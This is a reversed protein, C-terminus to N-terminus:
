SVALFARSFILDSAVAGGFAGGLFNTFASVVVPAACLLSVEVVVDVDGLAVAAGVAVGTALAVGNEVVGGRGAAVTAGVAAADAGEEDTEDVGDCRRPRNSTGLAVSGGRFIGLAVACGVAALEGSVVFM